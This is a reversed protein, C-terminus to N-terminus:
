VSLNEGCIKACTRAFEAQEAIPVLYEAGVGELFARTQRYLGPKYRTDLDADLPIESLDFRGRPQIHVKELPRLIIRSSPTCIEVGWRGGSQWNACYSFLVGRVTVGSGVFRAGGPHWPLFGAVEAHLKHPSGALHFALDIVHSSNALGWHSQEVTDFKGSTADRERETFEFHISTAGGEEDIRMRAQRVSEFFRRNYGIFVQAGASDACRALDALDNPCVAGPKEVLISKVGADLLSRVSAATTSLSTCVIAHAPMADQRELWSNIGGDVATVGTEQVFLQTREMSRGVALTTVGLSKLVSAYATAMFGTGVLLVLPKM